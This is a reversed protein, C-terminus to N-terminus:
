VLQLMGDDKTHIKQLKVLDLNVKVGFCDLFFYYTGTKRLKALVFLPTTIGAPEATSMSNFTDRLFDSSTIKNSGRGLKFELFAAPAFHRTLTFRPLAGILSNFGSGFININWPVSNNSSNIIYIRIM